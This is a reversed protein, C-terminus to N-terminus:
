ARTNYVFTDQLDQRYTEPPLYWRQHKGPNLEFWKPNGSSHWPELDFRLHPQNPMQPKFDIEPPEKLKQCKNIYSSRAWFFNGAFYHANVDEQDNDLYAAGVLDYGEDLKSVCEQWREICFYELYKRWNYNGITRTYAGKNHIYLAYFEKESKNCEEQLNLCTTYEYWERYEDDFHKFNINKYYSLDRKLNSYNDENYHTCIRVEQSDDLLGTQRLLNIQELTIYIESTIDTAHVFVKIDM